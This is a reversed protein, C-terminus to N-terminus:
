EVILKTTFQGSTIIYVGVAPKHSLEVKFLGDAGKKATGAFIVKGALDSVKVAALENQQAAHVRISFVNTNVPNPYIEFDDKNFNIKVLRTGLITSTGDRDVQTLRYYAEGAEPSQDSFSYSSNNGISKVLNGIKIFSKGDSSREVFFHDNNNESSTQWNLVVAGSSQQRATYNVVTVPLVTTALGAIETADLARNYIKFEDISGKLLPDSAFQSKGLYNQTTNGLASPKININTNTASLAGNIYMRCTNGSQTIAFHTWTGVPLTYTYSLTQETGNNNRIAYRMVNAAGAQISFFMYTPTGSGFDFVRMWNTKVDMKVWTAITFDTLGSVVGTPLTAYSNTTGDLKIANGVRGEVRQATAMLTGHNAGWNDRAKTGSAEDFRLSLYQGLVPKAIVEASNPYETGSEVGSVTYYYSTGNTLGTDTFKTTSATGVSSYPGGAVASRKINYTFGPIADWELVVKTDGEAVLVNGVTTNMVTLTFTLTDATSGNSAILNIPFIGYVSPSGSIVGTADNLSLGAPLGSASFNNPSKIGTITYSYPRGQLTTDAADSTIVVAMTRDDLLQIDNGTGGKYTIRFNNTGATVLSMEPLDKFTGAIANAGTNDIITFAAGLPVDGAAASLVLKPKASLNVATTIIKDASPTVPNIEVAYSADAKLTLAGASFTGVASNGPELVAGAGSGTGITITNTTRGTGGFAGEEVVVASSYSGDNPNNNILVKGKKVTTIGGFTSNGSLILTGTGVKELSMVSGNVNSINGSFTTNQNLAGVRIAPTGGGNCRIAGRGSLAGFEITGSNFQLSQTDNGTNDLLWFAKASGAQPTEFRTRSNGSRLKSIFTGEFASNDGYLHLGATTNGDQEVTGNGLLRGRFNLAAGTQFIYSRRENKIEIDNYLTADTSSYLSGGNMIVKGTGLPGSTPASQTGTGHGGIVVSQVPPWGGATGNIVTNGTYTNNGTIFLSGSGTRTIGGNGSIIGNLTVNGPGSNVYLQDEVIVPAGITQSRASLNVLDDKLKITDGTITYSSANESFNIRSAELNNIDNVLVSDATSGFNLISPNVPLANELWNGALNLSDSLPVPNWTATSAGAFGFAESSNASEKTNGASSVVYYYPNGPTVEADAYTTDAVTAVTTYPGGSVTGRKVKYTLAGSASEWKLDIQTAKNVVVPKSPVAPPVSASVIVSNGSELEGALATVLYYNDLEPEPKADIFSTGTIGSQLTVFPGAASLSRKVTYSSAGTVAAWSVAIRTTNNVAASVNAPIAPATNNTLNLVLTAYGNGSANVAEINVAFKGTALPTGSIIGTLSDISLGQPLNSARFVTPNNSASLAYNFLTNIKGNVSLGSTLEPAAAPIGTTIKLNSFTATNLASTNNSLTYFGIYSDSFTQRSLALNTWNISDKSHYTFIRDGVRELKFWWPIKPLYHSSSVGGTAAIGIAMYRANSALSERLMVGCNSTSLSTNEVKVVIAVDGKVRRFTFNVANSLSNGAGKVTWKGDNFSLDGVIGTNGIDINSMSNVTVASDGPYVIPTLPTAQSSDSSKLYLFSWSNEGMLNRMQTTYPTAIGKRRSYANEIINNFPSHRRFGTPIGWNVYYASYGGFPIFPISGAPSLSYKHYLEGLALLRNDLESFLDIGQKWAVEASWGLAQIQVWWHDDRGSDGVEGNPLSNRLGGGADMRYVEIAQQFRVPDGLYAAIGVAIELMIAGKNHDRLPAPVWSHPYLVDRFYKEVNASNAASWGPFTSRLIDAAPVFYPVYDGIDLMSENGGWSTNIRAWADLINTAKRAYTSDGTFVYMFTLNHIAQMDSKWADNNLNPARTVSAFPGRMSYDLRSRSDNKLANYGTLWPEQTINAKLQALDAQTFPVGPHTFQTVQARLPAYTILTVFLFLLLYTGSKWGSLKKLLLKNM